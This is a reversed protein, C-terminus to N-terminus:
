STAELLRVLQVRMAEQEEEGLPAFFAAAAEDLAREARRQLERGKATLRITYARRDAPNRERRVLRMRELDDILSVMTTRDIRLADAIAQQSLAQAGSARRGALVEHVSDGPAGAEEHTVFTLVGFHKVGIGLPELAANGALQAAESAAFLLAGLRRAVVAPLPSRERPHNDV